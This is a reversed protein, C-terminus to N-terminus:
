VVETALTKLVEGRRGVRRPSTILDFALPM